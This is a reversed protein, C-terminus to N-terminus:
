TKTQGTWSDGGGGGGDGGGGGSEALFELENKAAPQWRAPRGDRWQDDRRRAAGEMVNGAEMPRGTGGDTVGGSRWWEVVRGVLSGVM